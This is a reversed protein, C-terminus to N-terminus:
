GSSALPMGEVDCHQLLISLEVETIATNSFLCDAKLSKTVKYITINKYKCLFLFTMIPFFLVFNQSIAIPHYSDIGRPVLNIKTIWEMKHNSFM